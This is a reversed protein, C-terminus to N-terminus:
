WGNGGNIGQGTTTINNELVIRPNPTSPPTVGSGGGAAGSGGGAAGSGGGAAGAGGGAGGSGGGTTGSGGGVTGADPHPRRHHSLNLTATGMEDTPPDISGVDCAAFPVVLAASMVCSRFLAGPVAFSCRACVM